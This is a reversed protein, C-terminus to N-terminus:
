QGSTCPVLVLRRYRRPRVTKGDRAIYIPLGLRAHEIIVKEAAAKLVMEARVTVPLALVNPAAESNAKTYTSCQSILPSSAAIPAWM